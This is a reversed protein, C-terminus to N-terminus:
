IRHITPRGIESMTQGGVVELGKIHTGGDQQQM